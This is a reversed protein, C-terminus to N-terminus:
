RRTPRKRRYLTLGAMGAALVCALLWPASGGDGTKPISLPIGPAYLFAAFPSLDTVTFTAKGDEVMATYTELMGGNCHLITIVLGNYQAGVPLTITLPAVFGRSLSLDMSLLLMDNEDNMRQRIEDCAGDNRLTIDNVTLMANRHINGSVTIDTVSDTLTRFPYAGGGLPIGGGTDDTDGTYRFTASISHNSMVGTFTYSSINGKNVNDVTVSSIRYNDDPDIFFTQSGGEAVSVAGSPTISGGSGASATITHFIVDAQPTATISAEAGTGVANVARVSLTYSQGNTLGTVTYGTIDGVDTWNSGDSSVEYGTIPSSGDSEPASWTLAVQEDGPTAALSQPASPVAALAQPTATISPEAGTGVANVARVSLTYSQGNTLGTVTYGTVDGVDTWNSGDSSVEYRTIESGGDSAPTAWSLAVQGDGPTAALNQPAAPITVYSYAPSPESFSSDTYTISDGVARVKFTYSGSGLAAIATTFDHETGSTVSVESGEATGDKYLQAAYGAAHDVAGWKAKGPIVTDWSLGTPAPLIAITSSYGADATVDHAPMAAPLSNWGSFDGLDSTPDAVSATSISDGSNYYQVAHVTTGNMYTLKYVANGEDSALFVPLEDAGIDQGFAGGATRLLYAVEGSSFAASPRATTSSTGTGYGVGIVGIDSYYLSTITGSSNNGCIAGKYITDGLISGTNYGYTITAGSAYNSACIGGVNGIICSVTGTNYVNRVTKENGGSIGGAGGGNMNVAGTNYSNEILGGDPISGARNVGCIGGGINNYGNVAGTNYCGSITGYNAGCIGGAINNYGSITGTNYCDSITGYNEGCIGGWFRSPMNEAQVASVTGSNHCDLISTTYYAHGCIGGMFEVGQVAGSYFCNQIIGGTNLVGSIGGVHAKGRIYSAQVGLNKVTGTIYGFLGQYDSQGNAIYVGSITHNDGDFVGTYAATLAPGSGIPTWANAPPASGWSQWNSPNNLLINDTLRACISRQNYVNIQEAFWAFQEATGILYPNGPEGNGLTPAQTGGAWIGSDALAPQPLLILTLLVCLMLSIIRKAKM